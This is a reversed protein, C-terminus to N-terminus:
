APCSAPLHLHQHELRYKGGPEGVNSIPIRLPCSQDARKPLSTPNRVSALCCSLRVPRPSKRSFRPSLSVSVVCIFNLTAANVAQTNSECAPRLADSQSRKRPGLPLPTLRSGSDNGVSNLASFFRFHFAARGPRPTDQGITIPSRM